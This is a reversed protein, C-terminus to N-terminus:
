GAGDCWGVVGELLTNFKQQTAAKDSMTSVINLLIQECVTNETNASVNSIDSLIDQFTSLTDQSSKTALQRLGLVFLRGDEDRVYFGEMKKGYKSTEDSLLCLNEKEPLSESLQKQALMLRPINMNNITFVSRLKNAKLNVLKLVAEMVPAVKSTTVNPTEPTSAKIDEDYLNLQNDNVLGRLYQNEELM